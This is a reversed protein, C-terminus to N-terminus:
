YITKSGGMEFEEEHQVSVVVTDIRIPINGRGYAITVQSKGM